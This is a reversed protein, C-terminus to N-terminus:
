NVLEIKHIIYSGPHNGPDLRLSGKIKEAPLSIYVSNRGVSIKRKISQSENFSESHSIKYFLQLETTSPATIDIKLNKRDALIELKPLIFHPDNSTATFEIGVDTLRVHEINNNFKSEKFLTNNDITYYNKNKTKKEKLSHCYNQLDNHSEKLVQFERNQRLFIEMFIPTAREITLGNYPEWNKNTDPLPDLFLNSREEGLFTKAININSNNYENIIDLKEQPSLLGYDEMPKKLYESPVMKSMFDLLSNDHINTLTNKCLSLIEIVDRNFGLNSNEPKSPPEKFGLKSEINLIKLFDLIIDNGIQSKEYPRVVIQDTKFFNLWQSLVVFWNFNHRKVYDQISNMKPDKHGWQKWASEIWNDQRRLYVIITIDINLGSIIENIKEPWKNWLFIAESSILISKIENKYCYQIIKNLSETIESYDDKNRAVEFINLHNTMQGKTYDDNNLNPYLINHKKALYIRNYDFFSQLASSGTKPEGVHLFLRIKDKKM